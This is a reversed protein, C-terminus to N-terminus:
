GCCGPAFYPTPKVARIFSSMFTGAVQSGTADVDVGPGSLFARADEINYVRAPDV